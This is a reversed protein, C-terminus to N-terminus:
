RGDLLRELTDDSVNDYTEVDLEGNGQYNLILRKGVKDRTGHKPCIYSLGMLSACQVAGKITPPNVMGQLCRGLSRSYNNCKGCGPM